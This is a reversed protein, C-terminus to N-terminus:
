KRGLTRKAWFRLGEGAMVQLLAVSLNVLASRVHQLARLGVPDRVLAFGLVHHGQPLALWATKDRFIANYAWLFLLVTFVAKLAQYVPKTFDEKKEEKSAVHHPFHMDYLV